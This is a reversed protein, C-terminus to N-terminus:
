QAAGAHAVPPQSIRTMLNVTWIVGLAILASGASAAIALGLTTDKEAYAMVAFGPVYTFCIAWIIATKLSWRRRRLLGYVTLLGFVGYLLVGVTVAHQPVTRGEGWEHTGNYVGVAGTFLLLILSLAFAIKRGM